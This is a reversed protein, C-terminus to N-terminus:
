KLSKGSRLDYNQLDSLLSNVNVRYCNSCCMDIEHELLLIDEHITSSAGCNM